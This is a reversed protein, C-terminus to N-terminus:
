SVLWRVVPPCKKFGRGHVYHTGQVEPVIAAITGVVKAHHGAVLVSVGENVGTQLHIETRAGPADAQLIVCGVHVGPRRKQPDLGLVKAERVVFGSQQLAMCPHEPWPWGLDDLWVCGGNHQIFYVAFSCKPCKTQQIPQANSTVPATFGSQGGPRMPVVRGELTVFDLPKGCKRCTVNAM